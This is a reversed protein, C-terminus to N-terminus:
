EGPTLHGRGIPAQMIRQQEYNRYNLPMAEASELTPPWPAQVM